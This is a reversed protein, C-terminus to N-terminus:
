PRRAPRILTTATPAYPSSPSIAGPWYFADDTPRPGFIAQGVRVVDAGEEIAVEYDGSMGMSLQTLGPHVAMTKDRLARLLRFCPRVRETDASFVALTM